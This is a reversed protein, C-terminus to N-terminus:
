DGMDKQIICMSDIWIYHIGWWQRAVLMADQFTKPIKSWPILGLQARYNERTTMCPSEKDGWRYSLTTYRLSGRSQAGYLSASEVLVM